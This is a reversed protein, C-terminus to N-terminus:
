RPRNTETSHIDVAIDVHPGLPNDILSGEAERYHHACWSLPLVRGDSMSVATVVQARQGCRDCREHDITVALVPASHTLLASGVTL